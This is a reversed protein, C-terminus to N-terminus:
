RDRYVHRPHVYPAAVSLPRGRLSDPVPFAAAVVSYSVTDVCAGDAAHDDWAFLRVSDAPGLRVSDVGARYGTCSGREFGYVLAAEREFAVAPARGRLGLAAWERRWAERGRVVRPVAMAVAAPASVDGEFGSALVRASAPQRGGARRDGADQSRPEPACASALWLGFFAARVREPM